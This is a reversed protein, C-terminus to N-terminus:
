SDKLLWGAAQMFSTVVLLPDKNETETRSCQTQPITVDERGAPTERLATLM